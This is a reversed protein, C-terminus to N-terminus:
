QKSNIQNKEDEKAQKIWKPLTEKISQFGIKNKKAYHRKKKPYYVFTQPDELTRLSLSIKKTYEDIDIVMVELEEGVTLLEDVEKVYGHRCESIHILGQTEEDLSVFAGYPQIGTVKGKTVMGTKYEM